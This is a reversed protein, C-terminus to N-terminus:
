AWGRLQGQAPAGNAPTQNTQIIGMTSAQPAGRLPSGSSSCGGVCLAANLARTAMSAIPPRVVIWSMMASRVIWGSWTLGHLRCRSSRALLSNVLPLDVLALPGSRNWRIRRSIGASPQCGGLSDAVLEPQLFGGRSFPSKQQRTLSPAVGMGLTEGAVVETPARTDPDAAIPM